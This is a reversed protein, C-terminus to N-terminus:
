AAGGFSQLYRRDRGELILCTLAGGFVAGTDINIRNARADPAGVPTHGHVVCKGFDADSSLFPERIWLLDEETQADLPVGPRLGAHVFVYDDLSAGLSLSELFSLREPDLRDLTAARLAEPDAALTVGFSRLTAIGGNHLWVPMFQPDQLARLLMDEHNGKLCVRRDCVSEGARLWDLVEKSAPGRDVYDGLFIEVAHDVPSAARHAAIKEYLDLLLDVRGHIDGIAYIRLGERLRWRAAGTTSAHAPEGTM